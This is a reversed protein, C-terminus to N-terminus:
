EYATQLKASSIEQPYNMFFFVEANADHLTPVVVAELDSVELRRGSEGPSGNRGIAIASGVRIMGAEDAAIIPGSVTEDVLGLSQVKSSKEGEKPTELTSESTLNGQLLRPLIWAWGRWGPHKHQLYHLLPSVKPCSAVASDIDTYVGFVTKIADVVNITCLFADIDCNTSAGILKSALGAFNEVTDFALQECDTIEGACAMSITAAAQSADMTDAIFGSIDAACDPPSLLDGMCDGTMAVVDQAMMTIDNILLTASAACFPPDFIATPHNWLLWATADGNPRFVNANLLYPLSCFTWLWRM